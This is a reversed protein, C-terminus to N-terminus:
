GGFEAMEEIGLDGHNIEGSDMKIEVAQMM